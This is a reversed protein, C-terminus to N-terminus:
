IHKAGGGREGTKWPMSRGQKTIEIFYFIIKKWVVIDDIYRNVFFM